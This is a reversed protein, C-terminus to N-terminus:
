GCFVYLDNDDTFACLTPIKNDYIWIHDVYNKNLNVTSKYEKCTNEFGFWFSLHNKGSTCIVRNNMFSIKNVDNPLYFIYKPQYNNEKYKKFTQIDYIVGKLENKENQGIACILNGDESFNCYIFRKFQNSIIKRKPKYISFSSFNLRSLNYISIDCNKETECSVLLLYSDRSSNISNIKIVDKEM